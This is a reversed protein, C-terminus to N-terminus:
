VRVSGSLSEVHLEPGVTLVLDVGLAPSSVRGSPDARTAAYVGARLSFVEVVLTLQDVLWVEAVGRKAYFPLKKRSQDNPSLIEIVLTAAGVIGREEAQSPAVAVLDPVRFNQWGAGEIIGSESSLELGLEDLIPGIARAFRISLRGHHHSPPPVMHLVGDWVEDRRDLGLRRREEYEESTIEVDLITAPSSM